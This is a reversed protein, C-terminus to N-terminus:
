FSMRVGVQISGTAQKAVLAGVGVFPQVKWKRLEVGGQVAVGNQVADYAGQVFFGVPPPLPAKPPHLLAVVQADKARLAESAAELAARAVSDRWAYESTVSDFLAQIEASQLSDGGGIAVHTLVTDVRAKWRTVQVVAPRHTYYVAKVSDFARQASDARVASETLKAKYVVLEASLAANAARSRQLAIGGAVMALTWLVVAWFKVTGTM